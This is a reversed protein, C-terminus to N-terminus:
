AGALHGGVGGVNPEVVRLTPQGVLRQREIRGTGVLASAMIALDPATGFLGAHGAVGGYVSANEDHVEGAVLRTGLLANNSTVAIRSRQTSGPRYGTDKMGLLAFIRSHLYEDLPM